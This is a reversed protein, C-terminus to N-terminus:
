GNAAGEVTVGASVHLPVSWPDGIARVRGFGRTGMGGVGLAEAMRLGTTIVERVASMGDPQDWGLPALKSQLAQITQPNDRLRRFRDLSQLNLHHPFGNRYDDVVMDWAFFTARPIAEYTFLAGDEAAGTAPDLSV